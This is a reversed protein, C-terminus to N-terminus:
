VNNENYIGYEILNEGYHESNYKRVEKELNDMDKIDINETRIIFDPGKTSKTLIKIRM